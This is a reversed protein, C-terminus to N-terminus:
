YLVYQIIRALSFLLSLREGEISREAAIFLTILVKELLERM